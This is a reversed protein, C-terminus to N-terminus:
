IGIYRTEILEKLKRQAAAYEQEAKALAEIEPKAREASVQAVLQAGNLRLRGFWLQSASQHVQKAYARDAQAKKYLPQAKMQALKFAIAAAAVEDDAAQIEANKAKSAQRIARRRAVAEDAASIGVPYVKTERDLDVARV